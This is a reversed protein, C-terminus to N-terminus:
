PYLSFVREAENWGVNEAKRMWDGRGDRVSVSFKGNRVIMITKGDRSKKVTQISM